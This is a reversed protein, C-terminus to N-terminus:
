HSKTVSSKVITAKQQKNDDDLITMKNGSVTFKVEEGLTINAPKSWPFNLKQRVVYTKTPTEITFVQYTDTDSTTHATGSRSGDKYRDQNYTTTSSGSPVEQKETDTLKGTHWDSAFALTTSLFLIPLLIAAFRRM